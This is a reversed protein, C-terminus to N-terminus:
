DYDLELDELPDYEDLTDMISDLCEDCYWDDWHNIYHADPSDCSRCRM